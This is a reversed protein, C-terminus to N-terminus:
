KKNNLFYETIYAVALWTTLLKSKNVKNDLIIKNTDIFKIKVRDREIIFTIHNNREIADIVEHLSNWNLHYDVIPLGEEIKTPDLYLEGKLPLIITESKIDNNAKNTPIKGSM